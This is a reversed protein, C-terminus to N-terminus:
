RARARRFSLPPPLLAPPGTLPLPITLLPPQLCSSPTLPLPLAVRLGGSPSVASALWLERRMGAEDGYIGVLAVLVVRCCRHVGVACV